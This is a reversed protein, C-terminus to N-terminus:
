SVVAAAVVCAGVVLSLGTTVGVGVTVGSAYISDKFIRLNEASQKTSLLELYMKTYVALVFRYIIYDTYTDFGLFSLNSSFLSFM